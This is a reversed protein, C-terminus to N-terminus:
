ATLLRKRFLDLVQDLADRTPHGPEDVLDRTLVSHARKRIDHPNGPSSDIEVGVFADGLEARLRAFREEPVAMDCTFRLGLVDVGAATRAKVRALDESSIGVDRKRSKTVAFPLSPQSLVPAVVVEDVMMALAFGGTLCMGVAGVGPGGCREHEHRALARLWVTVPSTKGTAWTTFERSVCAWAITSIEYPASEEKGPEGFLQPLVATCGIAAVRDAFAVVDPTIGPVEAIVIVAPGSGRRFVRREKGDHTFTDTAYDELPM